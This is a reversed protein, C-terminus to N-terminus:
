AILSELNKLKSKSSGTITRLVSNTRKVHRQKTMKLTKTSKRSSNPRFTHDFPTMM